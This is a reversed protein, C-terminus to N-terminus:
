RQALLKERRLEFAARQRFRSDIGVTKYRTYRIAEWTFDTLNRVFMKELFDRPGLDRLFCSTIGYYSGIKETSLVPSPGFLKELEAIISEVQADQM